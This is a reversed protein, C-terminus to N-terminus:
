RFNQDPEASPDTVPIPTSRGAYKLRVQVIGAPRPPPTEITVDWNLLGDENSVTDSQRNTIRSSRKAKKPVIIDTM